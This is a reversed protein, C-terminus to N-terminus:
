KWRKRMIKGIEKRMNRIQEPTYSLDGTLGFTQLIRRIAEQESENDKKVSLATHVLIDYDEIGDRFNELRISSVPGNEGPYILMGSSSTAKGDLRPDWESLINDSIFKKNGVWRNMCWILYGDSEVSLTRLPLARFYVTSTEINLDYASYWWVERGEKRAKKVTELTRLYTSVSAVFADVADKLISETGYTEDHITTITKLGTKRKVNTFVEKCYEFFEQRQEDFGYFYSIRLLGKEKLWPSIKEELNKITEFAVPKLTPKGDSNYIASPISSVIIFNQGKEAAKCVVEQPYFDISEYLSGIGIRYEILLDYFKPAIKEWKEGYYVSNQQNFYPGKAIRGSFSLLKKMYWKEPLQGPLVEITLNANLSKLSKDEERSFTIEINVPYKGPKQNIPLKVEIWVPQFTKNEASFSNKELLPDPWWGSYPFPETKYFNISPQNIKVYGVVKWTFSDEPIKGQAGLLPKISLSINSLNQFPVLVLQISEKEGPFVELYGEEKYSHPPLDYLFVKEMSDVWFYGLDQYKKRLNFIFSEREIKQQLKYSEKIVQWIRRKQVAPMLEQKKLEKQLKRLQNVIEEVKNDVIDIKSKGKLIGRNTELSKQISTMLEPITEMFYDEIELNDFWVEDGSGGSNMLFIRMETAEPPVRIRFSLQKWDTTGTIFIDEFRSEPFWGYVWEGRENKSRVGIQTKGKGNKVKVWVKLCYELGGVVPVDTYWSANNPGENKIYLCGQGSRAEKKDWKFEGKTGPSIYTSWHLPVVEGKEFDGNIDELIPFGEGLSFLFVNIVLFYIFKM